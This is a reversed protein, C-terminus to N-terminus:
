TEIMIGMCFLNLTQAAVLYHVNDGVVPVLRGHDVTDLGLAYRQAVGNSSAYAGYYAHTNTGGDLSLNWYCTSGTATSAPMWAVAVATPVVASIDQATYSTQTLGSAISRRATYPKLINRGFAISAKEPLWNASGDTLRHDILRKLTYGSPYTPSNYSTSAVLTTTGDTKGLLWIYYHTSNAPSGTDLGMAGAVDLQLTGGAYELLYTNTDDMRVGASYTIDHDQDTEDATAGALIGDMFNDPPLSAPVFSAGDYKTLVGNVIFVSNTEITYTSASPATAYINGPRPRWKSNDDDWTYENGTAADLRKEGDTSGTGLAAENAVVSYIVSGGSHDHTSPSAAEALDKVANLWTRATAEYNAAGSSLLDGLAM